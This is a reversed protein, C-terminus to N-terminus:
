FLGLLKTSAVLLTLLLFIRVVGPGWKVSFKAGLWAGIMSGAAVILGLKYDVQNNLIFVVLSFPTYLLVLFVKLANAKILDFGSGLVLAALLFFGVGAQIFGGYVGVFFFIIIQAWLPLPPNGERSKIWRSPKWLILFFMIILLFGIATKMAKEDIDVAILAGLLSGAVSPIGIIAASRFDLIKQKKFSAAGVITQLLIGIRNTGNAVPASLGFAMFLPLTLLSGSGAITNIFGAVIGASILLAVQYWEM